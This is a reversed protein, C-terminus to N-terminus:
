VRELSQIESESWDYFQNETSELADICENHSRRAEGVLPDEPNAEIWERLEALAKPSYTDVRDQQELLAVKRDEDRLTKILAWTAIGWFAALTFVLMAIVEATLAM